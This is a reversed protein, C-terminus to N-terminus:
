LFTKPNFPAFSLWAQVFEKERAYVIEQKDLLKKGLLAIEVKEASLQVELHRM